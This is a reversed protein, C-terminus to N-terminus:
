DIGFAFLLYSGNMSAMGMAMIMFAYEGKPLPKDVVLEYYGSRIKKVSLTYKISEKKPKGLLKMGSYSQMILERKDKSVELSYLSTTQSPDMLMSSASEMNMSNGTSSANMGSAKIASDAEPTMESGGGFFVFYLHENQKLRVPSSKGEITAGNTGGGLGHSSQISSTEKELRLLKSSDRNLFYIENIYEPTPYSVTKTQAGAYLFLNAAILLFIYKM